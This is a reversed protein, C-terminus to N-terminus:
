EWSEYNYRAFGCVITRGTKEGPNYLCQSSNECLCIGEDCECLKCKCNETDSESDSSSSYIEPEGHCDPVCLRCECKIDSDSESYSDSDFSNELYYDKIYNIPVIKLTADEINTIDIPFDNLFEYWGDFSFDNSYEWTKSQYGKSKTDIYFGQSKDYEVYPNNYTENYGVYPDFVRGDYLRNVKKALQYHVVQKTQPDVYCEKDNNFLITNPGRIVFKYIPTTIYELIGGLEDSSDIANVKRLYNELTKIENETQTYPYHKLFDNPFQSGSFVYKFDSGKLEMRMDYQFCFQVYYETYNDYSFNDDLYDWTEVRFKRNHLELLLKSTLELSAKFMSEKDYFVQSPGLWYQHYTLCKESDDKHMDAGLVQGRIIGMNNDINLKKLIEFENM